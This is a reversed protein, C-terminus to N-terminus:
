CKGRIPSMERLRAAVRPLADLFADVEEDTNEAGLSIRISGQADVPDLGMAILVHSPDTEGTACASGSSLAFGLVSLYLTLAEGEVRRVTVNCTNPVREAGAGNITVDPIAALIGQEIRDRLRAIHAMEAGLREASIRCAEGFGAIAPVNETGARLGAEQHGGTLVAEIGTGRRIHLAGIGKPGYFKHASISMLDAGVAGADVPIKGAGQVADVHFAIGRPRAISAIAASPQIVGTENNALMVSILLTEPRVAAEVEEASVAGLSNVPLFTVDVGEKELARCTRIVAPHEISSTIVHPRRAPARKAAVVGRIALNDSETGGSTFIIEEPEAGILSAVQSRAREVANRAEQGSLHLSSANGFRRSFYPLMAEVVERRAGTTANHDFYVRTGKEIANDM